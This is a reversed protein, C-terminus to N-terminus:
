DKIFSGDVVKGKRNKIENWATNLCELLDIDRMYSLGFITVLLDGFADIEKERENKIIASSLEGLEEAVKMFQKPANEEKILEKEDFWQYLNTEIKNFSDKSMLKEIYNSADMLEEQLHKLFDDNNNEELTTGYKSIGVSARRRLKEIVNEVIPDQIIIFYKPIEDLDFIHHQDYDNIIIIRKDNEDIVKYQKGITLMFKGKDHGTVIECPNIATLVLTDFKIKNTMKKM